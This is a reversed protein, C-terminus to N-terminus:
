HPSFAWYDCLGPCRGPYQTYINLLAGQLPLVKIILSKGKCPTPAHPNRKGLASGQAIHKQGKPAHWEHTKVCGGGITLM